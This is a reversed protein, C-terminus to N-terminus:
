LAGDKFPLEPTNTFYSQIIPRNKETEIKIVKKTLWENQGQCTELLSLSIGDGQINILRVSNFLLGSDRLITLVKKASVEQLLQCKARVRKQSQLAIKKKLKVFHHVTTNRSRSIRPEAFLAFTLKWVIGDSLCRLFAHSSLIRRM